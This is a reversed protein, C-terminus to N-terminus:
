RIEHCCCQQESMETNIGGRECNKNTFWRKWWRSGSKPWIEQWLGLPLMREDAETTKKYKTNDQGGAREGRTQGKQQEEGEWQMFSFSSFGFWLLFHFSSRVLSSSVHQPFNLPWKCGPSAQEENRAERDDLESIIELDDEKEDTSGKWEEDRVEHTDRGKRKRFTGRLQEPVRAKKFHQWDNQQEDRRPEKSSLSVIVALTTVTLLLLCPFLRCMVTFLLCRLLLFCCLFCVSTLISCSSKECGFQVIRNEKWDQNGWNPVLSRRFIGIALFWIGDAIRTSFSHSLGSNQTPVASSCTRLIITRFSLTVSLSLWEM